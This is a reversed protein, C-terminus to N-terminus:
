VNAVLGQQKFRRLSCTRAENARWSCRCNLCQYTNKTKQLGSSQCEPCLSRLHLWSRYTDLNDEIIETDISIGLSKALDAAYTWAQKELRVLGIDSTYHMHGLEAHGLEHLLKALDVVDNIQKYKITQTNPSWLFTKDAVFTYKPFRGIVQDALKNIHPTTIAGM